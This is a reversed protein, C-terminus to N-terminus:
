EVRGCGGGSCHVKVVDHVGMSCTFICVVIGGGGGLVHEYDTPYVYRRGVTSQDRTGNTNNDSIIGGYRCPFLFALFALLLAIYAILAYTPRVLALSDHHPPSSPWM